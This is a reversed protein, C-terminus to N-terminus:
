RRPPSLSLPAPTERRENWRLDRPDSQITTRVSGFGFSTTNTYTSASGNFSTGVQPRGAGVFSDRLDPGSQGSPKLHLAVDRNPPASSITLALSPTAALLAVTSALATLGIRM